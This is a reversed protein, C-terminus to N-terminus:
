SSASGGAGGGPGAAGIGGSANVTVSSGITVNNTVVLSLPRGGRILITGSTVTFDGLLTLRAVGGVVQATMPFGNFQTGSGNITLADTDITVDAGSRGASVALLCLLGLTRRVGAFLANTYGSCHRQMTREGKLDFNGGRAPNVTPKLHSRGQTPFG